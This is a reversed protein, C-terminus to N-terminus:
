PAPALSGFRGDGVLGVIAAHARELADDADSSIAPAFRIAIRRPRPWKAARPWAEFAGRIGAPVIPAGTMRAALLAGARFPQVHGDTTRTGEPFIVLADGLELHAVMERLAARDPQGRKILVAGCERMLWALPKSRALTDRAVFAVHRRAAHSILPVDLFSQHNSLIVLPGHLPLHERGECRSRFYASFFANTTLRTVRYAWTPEVLVTPTAAPTESM